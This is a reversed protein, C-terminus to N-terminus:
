LKSYDQKGRRRNFCSLLLCCTTTKSEAEEAKGAAAGCVSCLQVFVPVTSSRSLRTVVKSTYMKEDIVLKQLPRTNYPPSKGRTVRFAQSCDSHSGWAVHRGNSRLLPVDTFLAWLTVVGHMLNQMFHVPVPYNSSLRPLFTLQSPDWWNEWFDWQDSLAHRFNIPPPFTAPPIPRNKLIWNWCIHVRLLSIECYARM